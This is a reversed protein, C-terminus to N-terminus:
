SSHSLRPPRGPSGTGLLGDPQLQSYLLAAHVPVVGNEKEARRALAYESHLPTSSIPHLSKLDGKASFGSLGSSKCLKGEFVLLRSRSRHMISVPRNLESITHTHTHRHARARARAHAHIRAHTHTYAHTRAQSRTPM